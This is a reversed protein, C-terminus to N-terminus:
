KMDIFQRDQSTLQSKDLIYYNKAGEAEIAEGTVAVEKFIIIDDGGFYCDDKPNKPTIETVYNGNKDYVFIKRDNFSEDIYMKQRNDFYIYNSDASIYCPGDINCFFKEENTNINICNVSTEDNEFYVYGDNIYSAFPANGMKKTELSHINLINSNTTYGNGDEDVYSSTEFLLNNGYASLGFINSGIGSFEYIAEPDDVKTNGLKTRYLWTSSPKMSPQGYVFYIYGRHILYDIAIQNSSDFLYAVKKHRFNDLNIQYMYNHRVSGEAEYGLIYLSNDYYSMGMMPRYKFPSLYASCNSDNHKCNAKNCLPYAQNTETDYFYLKLDTIFYYGNDTKVFSSHSDLFNQHDENAIYQESNQNINTNIQSSSCGTFLLIVVSIIATIIIYRKKM